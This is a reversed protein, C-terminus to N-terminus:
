LSNLNSSNAMNDGYDLLSTNSVSTTINFQVNLPPCGVNNTMVTTATPPSNINNIQHNNNFVDMLIQLQHEM